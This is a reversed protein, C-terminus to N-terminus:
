ENTNDVFILPSKKVSLFEGKYEGDPVLIAYVGVYEKDTIESIDINVDVTTIMDLNTNVRIYDNDSIKAVKNDVLVYLNYKECDGGYITLTTDIVGNDAKIKREGNENEVDFYVLPADAFRNGGDMINWRNIFESTLEITPFVTLTDKVSAEGEKNFIASYPQSIAFSLGEENTDKNIELTPNLLSIIDVRTDENDNYSVPMFEIDYTTDESTTVVNVIQEDGGNISIPQIYGDVFCMVGIDINDTPM